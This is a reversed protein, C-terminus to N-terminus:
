RRRAATMIDDNRAIINPLLNEKVSFKADFNIKCETILLLLLNKIKEFKVIM